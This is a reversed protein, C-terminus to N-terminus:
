RQISELENVIWEDGGGLRRGSKPTLPIGTGWSVLAAILCILVIFLIVMISFIGAM